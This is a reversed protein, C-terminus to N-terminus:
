LFWVALLAGAILCVVAVMGMGLKFPESKPLVLPTSKPALSYDRPVNVVEDRIRFPESEEGNFYVWHFRPMKLAKNGLGKSKRNLSRM